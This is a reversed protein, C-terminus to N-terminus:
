PEVSEGSSFAALPQILQAGCDPSATSSAAHLSHSQPFYFCFLQISAAATVPSGCFASPNLEAIKQAGAIM